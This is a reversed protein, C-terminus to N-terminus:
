HGGKVALRLSGPDAPDLRSIMWAMDGYWDHETGGFAGESEPLPWAFQHLPWAFQNFDAVRFDNRMGLQTLAPLALREALHTLLGPHFTPNSDSDSFSVWVGPAVVTRVPFQAIDRVF